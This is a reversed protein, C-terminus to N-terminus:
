HYGVRLQELRGDHLQQRQDLVHHRDDPHLHEMWLELPQLGQERDSPLGCLDCYRDDVFVGGNSFDYVPPWLWGGLAALSQCSSM